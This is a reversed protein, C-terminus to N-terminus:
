GAQLGVGADEEADIQGCLVATGECCAQVWCCYMVGVAAAVELKCCRSEMLLKKCANGNLKGDLRWTCCTHHCVGMM